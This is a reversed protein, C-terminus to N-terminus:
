QVTHLDVSENEPTLWYDGGGRERRMFGYEVLNRRLIAYDPHVETLIANVEKEAYRVGPQFRSALWRLIVLWRSEKSPLRTLRGNVTFDYLVKKDATDWDLADIWRNDSAVSERTEIPKDIVAVYGKFRALGRDNLRYFRQNGAMRLNLLGATHLKSVHHSVTPETLGLLEAMEGVTREREGMLTVMTLRNEDAVAKLMLLLEGQQGRDV